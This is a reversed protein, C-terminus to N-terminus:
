TFLAGLHHNASCDISYLGKVTEAAPPTWENKHLVFGHRPWLADLAYCCVKLFEPQCLDHQEIKGSFSLSVFDISVCLNISDTFFTQTSSFAKIFAACKNQVKAWGAENVQYLYQSSVSRWCGESFCQSCTARLSGCLKMCVVVLRVIDSEKAPPNTELFILPPVSALFFM